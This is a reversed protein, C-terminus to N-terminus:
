RDSKNKLNRKAFKRLAEYTNKSKLFARKQPPRDEGEAGLATELTRREDETRNCALLV